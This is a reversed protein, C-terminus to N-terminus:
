SDALSARFRISSIKPQIFVIPPHPLRAMAALPADTPHEGQRGGGVVQDPHAVKREGYWSSRSAPDFGEGFSWVFEFHGRGPCVCRCELPTGIRRSDLRLTM